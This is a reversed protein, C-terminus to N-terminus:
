FDQQQRVHQWTEGRDSSEYFDSTAGSCTLLIRDTVVGIIDACYPKPLALETKEWTVGGDDTALISTESKRQGSWFDVDSFNVIALGNDNDWFWPRSKFSFSESRAKVAKSGDNCVDNSQMTQGEKCTLIQANIERWPGDENIRSYYSPKGSWSWYGPQKIGLDIAGATLITDMEDYEEVVNMEWTDPSFRYTETDTSNFADWKGARYSSVKLIKKEGQQSVWVTKINHPRPPKERAELAVGAVEWRGAYDYTNLVKSTSLDENNFRAIHLFKDISYVVDFQNEQYFGLHHIAAKEPIAINEWDGGAKQFYLAGEFGGAIRDGADNQAFANVQLDTDVALTEFGDDASYRLVVGLKGLFYLSGDPALVEGSFTTPNQAASAYASFRQEDREDREWTLVEENNAFDPFYDKLVQGQASDPLRVLIDNYVDDAPKAYYVITGLDTVKGAQVKFVGFEPDTFSSRTYYSEGRFIISRVASLSYEGPTLSVAFLSSDGVPSGEAYALVTKVEKSTNVEKPDIFLQNFPLRYGTTNIVRAVLVGELPSVSTQASLQKAVNVNSACGSIIFTCIITFLILPKRALMKKRKINDEQGKM